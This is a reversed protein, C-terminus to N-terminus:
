LLFPQANAAKKKKKCGFVGDTYEPFPNYPEVRVLGSYSTM